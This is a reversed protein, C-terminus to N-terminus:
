LDEFFNETLSVSLSFSRRGEGAPLCAVQLAVANGNGDFTMQPRELRDMSEVTGDDWRVVAGSVPPIRSLRWELANPSEYFALTRGAGALVGENDKLVARFKGARADWWVFPDEAAFVAGEVRFPHVGKFKKYPGGPMPSEAVGHLVEKGFPRPGDTVGKYIM